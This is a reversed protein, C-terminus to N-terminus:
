EQLRRICVLGCWWVCARVDCVSGSFNDCLTYLKVTTNVNEKFKLFIDALTEQCQELAVDGFTHQARLAYYAAFDDLAHVQKQKIEFASRRDSTDVSM